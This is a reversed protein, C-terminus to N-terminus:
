NSLKKLKTTNCVMAEEWKQQPIIFGISRHLRSQNYHTIFRQITEKAEYYSAFENREIVERELISHFAEIYSNEEPTNFYEGKVPCRLSSM